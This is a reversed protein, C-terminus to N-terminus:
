YDNDDNKADATCVYKIEGKRRTEISYSWRHGGM